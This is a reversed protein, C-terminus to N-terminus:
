LEYVWIDVDFKNLIKETDEWPVAFLGSNIKPMAFKMTTKTLLDQIALETNKLILDPPDVFKGYSDSTFLCGIRNIVLAKGIASNDPVDLYNTDSIDNISCFKNYLAYEDAFLDRFTKAVGSGWVGQCNVAHVLLRDQPADFLDGKIYTIM